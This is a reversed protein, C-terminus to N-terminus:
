VADGSIILSFIIKIVCNVEGNFQSIGKERPVRCDTVYKTRDSSKKRSEEANSFKSFFESFTSLTNFILLCKALCTFSHLYHMSFYQTLFFLAIAHTILLMKTPFSTLGLKCPSGQNQTHSNRFFFRGECEPKYPVSAMISVFKNYIVQIHFSRVM